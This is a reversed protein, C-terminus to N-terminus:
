ACGPTVNELLNLNSQQMCNHVYGDLIKKVTEVDEQIDSAAMPRKRRAERLLIHLRNSAERRSRLVLPIERPRRVGTRLVSFREILSNTHKLFARTGLQNTSYFLILPEQLTTYLISDRCIYEHEDLVGLAGENRPARENSATSASCSSLYWAVFAGIAGGVLVPSALSLSTAESLGHRM